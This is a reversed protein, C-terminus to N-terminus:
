VGGTARSLVYDTLSASTNSSAGVLNGQMVVRQAQSTAFALKELESEPLSALRRAKESLSLGPPFSGVMGVKEMRSLLDVAREFNHLRDNETVLERVMVSGYKFLETLGELSLVMNQDEAM